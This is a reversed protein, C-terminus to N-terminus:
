LKVGKLKAQLASIRAGRENTWVWCVEGNWRMRVRQYGKSKLHKAIVRTGGSDNLRIKLKHEEIFEKMTFTPM